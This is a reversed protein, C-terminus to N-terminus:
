AVDVAANHQRALCERDMTKLCSMTKYECPKQLVSLSLEPLRLKCCSFGRPHNPVECELM